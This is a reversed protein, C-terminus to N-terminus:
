QDSESFESIGTTPIGLIIIECKAHISIVRMNIMESAQLCLWKCLKRSHEGVTIQMYIYSNRLLVIEFGYASSATFRVNGHINNSTFLVKLDVIYFHFAHFCCM